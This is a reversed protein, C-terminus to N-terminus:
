RAQKTPLFDSSSMDQIPDLFFSIKPRMYNCLLCVSYVHKTFFQLFMQHVKIKIGLRKVSTPPKFEQSTCM